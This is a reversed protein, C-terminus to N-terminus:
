LFNFGVIFLETTISLFLNLKFFLKVVGQGLLARCVKRIWSGVVLVETSQECPLLIDLVADKLHQFM